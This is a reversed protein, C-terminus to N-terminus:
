RLTSELLSTGAVVFARGNLWAGGRIPGLGLSARLTLGPFDRLAFQQREGGGELQVPYLGITRDVGHARSRYKSSPGALPLKM